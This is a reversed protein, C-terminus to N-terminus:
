PMPRWVNLPLPGCGNYHAPERADRPFIFSPQGVHSGRDDSYKLYYLKNTFLLKRTLDPGGGGEM